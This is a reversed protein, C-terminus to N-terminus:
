GPEDLGPDDVSDIPQDPMDPGNPDAMSYVTSCRCNAVQAASGSPDGPFMLEEAADGLMFPNNISVVQGDADVHDPRTRSDTMTAVWEKTLDYGADSIAGASEHTTAESVTHTETRAIREAINDGINFVTDIRSTLGDMGEGKNIGIQLEDLLRNAIDPGISTVKSVFTAAQNSLDLQGLIMGRTESPLKLFNFVVQSMDDLAGGVVPMVEDTIATDWASLNFPDPPAAATLHQARLTAMADAKHKALVGKIAREIKLELRRLRTEAIIRRGLRPDVLGDRASSLM